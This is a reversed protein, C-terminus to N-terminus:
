QDVWPYDASAAHFYNLKHENHLILLLGSQLRWLMCDSVEGAARLDDVVAARDDRRQRVPLGAGAAHPAAGAAADDM